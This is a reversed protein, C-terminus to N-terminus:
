VKKALSLRATNDLAVRFRDPIESLSQLFFPPRQSSSTPPSEHVSVKVDAIIEVLQFGNFAFQFGAADTGLLNMHEAVPIRIDLLMVQM